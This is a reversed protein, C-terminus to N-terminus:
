TLRIIEMECINNPRISGPKTIVVAELGPLTGFIEEWSREPSIDTIIHRFKETEPCFMLMHEPTQSPEGCPCQPDIHPHFRASYAGYFGHGTLLQVLRCQVNRPYTPLNFIPHLKLAPPRPIYTGSDPRSHIHENWVKDWNRTARKTAKTRAWTITRNFVPTPQLMESGKAAEDALENGDIKSHGPLWKVTIHRSPDKELFEQAHQHFARSAYQAPHRHLSSIAKVAAQNDCYIIIRKAQVQEAIRAASNLCMAIGLMEAYYINARPGISHSNRALIKHGYKVIYGLGVKPIGNLVGDRARRVGKTSFPTFDQTYHVPNALAYAKHKEEIRCLAFGM